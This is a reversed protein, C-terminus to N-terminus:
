AILDSVAILQRAVDVLRSNNEMARKRLARYAEDESFGRSKMLLGKDREIVKRDALKEEILATILIRLDIEIAGRFIRKIRFRVFSVGIESNKM